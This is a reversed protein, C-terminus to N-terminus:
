KEPPKRTVNTIEVLGVGVFIVLESTEAQIYVTPTLCLSSRLPSLSFVLYYYHYYYHRLLNINNM